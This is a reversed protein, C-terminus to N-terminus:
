GNLFEKLEGYFVFGSYQFPNVLKYLADLVLATENRGGDFSSFRAARWSRRRPAKM